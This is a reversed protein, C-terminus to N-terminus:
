RPGSNDVCRVFAAQMIVCRADSPLKVVEYIHAMFRYRTDLPIKKMLLILLWWPVLILFDDVSLDVLKM